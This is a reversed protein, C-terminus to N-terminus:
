LADEASSDVQVEGSDGDGYTAIRHISTLRNRQACTSTLYTM